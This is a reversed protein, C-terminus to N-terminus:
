PGHVHLLPMFTIPFLLSPHQFVKCSSLFLSTQILLTTKWFLIFIYHCLLHLAIKPLLFALFLLVFCVCVCVCCISNMSEMKAKRGHILFGPVWVIVLTSAYWMVLGGAKCIFSQTNAHQQAVSYRSRQRRLFVTPVSHWKQVFFLFLKCLASGM